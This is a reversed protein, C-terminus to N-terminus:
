QEGGSNLKSRPAKPTSIAELRKELENWTVFQAPDIPAKQPEPPRRDYILLNYGTQGQEKVIFATRDATYFLQSQGPELRFAEAEAIANVQLMRADIYPTMQPAPTQPQPQQLQRGQRASLWNIYQPDDEMRQGPYDPYWRERYPDVM